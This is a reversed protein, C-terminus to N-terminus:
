SLKKYQWYSYIYPTIILVAIITVILGTKWAGSLFTALIFAFGSGFYIKGCFRHTRKWVEDNSLTWPTRIGIFFNSKVQQMYNGLIIFIAGIFLTGLTSMPISYGLGTLILMINLLFFLTLLANYIIAYSKFFSQYNQKRPDIKPLFAVSVYLLIMIGLQMLMANLKPSYGDVEGNFNWHTPLEAPLKSFTILWAIATLGIMTIPFIHKKM